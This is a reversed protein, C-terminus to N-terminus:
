RRRVSPALSHCADEHVLASRGKQSDASGDLRVRAQGGRAAAGDPRRDVRQAPDHVHRGGRHRGVEVENAALKLADAGGSGADLFLPERGDLALDCEGQAM